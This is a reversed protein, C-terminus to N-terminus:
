KAYCCLFYFRVGGYFTSHFLRFKGLVLNLEETLVATNNSMTFRLKSYNLVYNCMTDSIASVEPDEQTKEDHVAEVSANENANTNGSPACFNRLPKGMTEDLSTKEDTLDNPVVCDYCQAGSSVNTSVRNENPVSSLNDDEFKPSPKGMFEVALTKVDTSVNSGNLVSEGMLQIEIVKGSPSISGSPMCIQEFLSADPVLASCTDGMKLAAEHRLSDLSPNDPTTMNVDCADSGVDSALTTGPTEVLVAEKGDGPPAANITRESDDSCSSEMELEEVDHAGDNSMRAEVELACVSYNM